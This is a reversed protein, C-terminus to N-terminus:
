MLFYRNKLIGDSEITLLSESLNILSLHNVTVKGSISGTANDLTLGDTEIIGGLSCDSERCFYLGRSSDNGGRVKTKLTGGTINFTGGSQYLGSYPGNATVTGRKITLKGYSEIGHRNYGSENVFLPHITDTQAQGHSFQQSGAIHCLIKHITWPSPPYSFDNCHFIKRIISPFITFFITTFLFIRSMNM